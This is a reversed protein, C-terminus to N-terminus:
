ALSMAVPARSLKLPRSSPKDANAPPTKPAPTPPAIPKGEDTAPARCPTASMSLKRALPKDSVCIRSVKCRPPVRANSSSATPVRSTSCNLWGCGSAGAGSAGAASAAGCVVSLVASNPSRAPSRASTVLWSLAAVVAALDCKSLIRADPASASVIFLATLSVASIAAKRVATARASRSAFCIASSSFDLSTASMFLARSM